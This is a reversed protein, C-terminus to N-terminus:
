LQKALEWFLAILGTTSGRLVIPVAALMRTGTGFALFNLVTDEGLDDIVFPSSLHLLRWLGSKTLRSELRRFDAAGLGKAAIIDAIDGDRGRLAVFAIRSPLARSMHELVVDTGARIGNADALTTAVRSIFGIHDVRM